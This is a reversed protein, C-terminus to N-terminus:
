GGDKNSREKDLLAKKREVGWRYGSLKGDSGVVRHCPNFLAVPNTACARAVARVAGANGIREAVEKYSRTEGYPIRRLEAWVQLQFATAQLDLPLELTRRREDLYEVIARVHTRLGGEDPRLEAAPFERSLNAELQEATDGFAVACVGKETAAVLLTGLSTDATAFSIRLSKGGRRYTAPTMGLKQSAKEYLARSSGFGSEYMATAVDTQRVHRKFNDLRLADAFEKPSVGLTQKFTRQLHSPSVGLQAALSELPLEEGFSNEILKCARTVLEASASRAGEASPRCRLCARFGAGEAEACSAFFTTNERKPLRAACSPKCYIGTSSVGFFFAGDFESNKNRVIEWRWESLREQTPTVRTMM